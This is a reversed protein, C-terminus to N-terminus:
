GARMVDPDPGTRMGRDLTAIVAMEDDTLTFDFLDANEAIRAPHASKPIVVVGRQLEWRLCVQAATKGHRAGIAVLQPDEAARGKIIPAWAEVAIGMETCYELLRPQQLWPHMEYQNVMPRVRATRLLDKLHHQLHNCVGIARVLGEAYLRELARWTEPTATRPWHVLYLDLYDTGLRGLSREFAGLTSDYGQEDNWVKSTLFLEDRPIASAAIAAGIEEENRYLSATDISRYGVALATAVAAEIEGADTLKYTGFGVRPMQVGNALEITDRLGHLM